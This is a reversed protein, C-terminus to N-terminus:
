FKWKREILDELEPYKFHKPKYSEAAEQTSLFPLLYYTCACNRLRKACLVYSILLNSMMSDPWNRYISRCSDYAM